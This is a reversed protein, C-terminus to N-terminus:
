LNKLRNVLWAYTRPARTPLESLGTGLGASPIVVICDTPLQSLDEDILACNMDFTDDTFFANPYMTPYLKTRVGIANPEGRLEKAQGGFGQRKFNDGFLYYVSPNMRADHRSIFKQYIIKRM